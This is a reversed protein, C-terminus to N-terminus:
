VAAMVPIAVFEARTIARFCVRDGAKLLAPSRREADFLQIPTRGIVNWGGPSNTPYVGTQAGGIAVSGAPVLKRPTARRPTALARPLGGLFPFGPMFGICHVRYEASHHLRVVDSVALKTRRAVEELDPAFEEEYCVPIEIMRSDPRKGKAEDLQALVLAIRAQLWEFIRDAPAGADSAPAPDCFVAVTSYATTIETVGPIAAAELLSQARLITDLTEDNVARSQGM